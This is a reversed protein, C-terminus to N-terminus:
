IRGRRVIEALLEAARVELQRNDQLMDYIGDESLFFRRTLMERTRTRKFLIVVFAVIVAVWVLLLWTDFGHDDRFVGFGLYAVTLVAAAVLLVTGLIM